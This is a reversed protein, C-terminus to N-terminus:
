RNADGQELMLALKPQCCVYCGDGPVIGKPTFTKMEVLTTCAYNLFRFWHVLAPLFFLRDGMVLNVSLSFITYHCFIFKM